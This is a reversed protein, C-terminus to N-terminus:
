IFRAPPFPAIQRGAYLHAPEGFLRVGLALLSEIWIGHSNQAESPVVPASCMRRDLRNCGNVGPQRGLLPRYLLPPCNGDGCLTKLAKQSLCM